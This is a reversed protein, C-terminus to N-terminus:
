SLGTIAMVLFFVIVIESVVWSNTSMWTRIRPLVVDARQGMLLLILLPIAVLLVTVLLFPLAHVLSLDERALVTGVTIMTIVDTPMLIFLLFGLKFSLEPTATELRGMWAPPETNNRRLYVRVTLGLLLAIIAYDVPGAGSDETSAREIDFITALVYVITTGLATALAVGALYAISNAHPRVSTALFIASVIQPGAVMVFALPLITLFNIL